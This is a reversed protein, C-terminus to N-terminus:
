FLYYYYYGILKRLIKFVFKTTTFIQITVDNKSYNM